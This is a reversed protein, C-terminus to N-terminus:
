RYLELALESYKDFLKCMKKCALQAKYKRYETQNKFKNRNFDVDNFHKIFNNIIAKVCDSSFKVALMYQESRVFKCLRFEINNNKSVNVFNRHELPESCENVRCAYYMFSRGCLAKTRIENESMHKCLGVFLSHYFRRIYNMTEPNIYDTHGVHFHTGCDMDVVLDGSAVYDDLTALMKPLKNLGQYIPSIFETDGISCDSTPIYDYEFLHVRVQESAHATEFEVGYTMGNVKQKGVVNNNQTSYPMKLTACKSCVFASRGGRNSLNLKVAEPSDARMTHGCRVCTCITRGM